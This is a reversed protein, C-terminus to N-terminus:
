KTEKRALVAAGTIGANDGLKSAIIEVGKLAGPMAYDKATEIIVSMMEDSLAELVGGGLVVVEPNLVNVLNATAIGIYEAAGEIIRDVFKDGKRIAKRLDGSRLDALDDGLMETLLTKQGDKIGSKIQQFIATRSALAEFCGKNGCGCKPGSVELVMHGIEGATHGFGSYLEGDVVLGGGIGTGVFIGVMSRPKSKLEAVYVGLASVNCDNEVFVPVGLIKELEKKLPVDTWGELNPAFIVTGSDFDVAGPAGIGVGAIQKFTLDAEDVADQASRAIREVVKDVGRQSKTSLKATGICELSHSFVGSLIKTGGLDVGVVYEAKTSAEAM